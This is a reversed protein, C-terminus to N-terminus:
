YFCTRTRHFAPLEDKSAEGLGWLLWDLEVSTVSGGLSVMVDRLQEVAMVTGARLEVEEESGPAIETGAEIASSLEPAVILLKDARLQQPVRYDAFMTLKGMDYFAAPRDHDQEGFPLLQRGYAAWVDGVFIQARKYFFVQRNKWVAQDRFGPFHAVMLDVLKAASNMAQKVVNLALGHFHM